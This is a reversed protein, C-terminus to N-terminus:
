FVLRKAYRALRRFGVFLGIASSTAGGISLAIVGIDWLPRQSYWFAFDLSHFGHYLWREVRQRRTFRAVMQSMGPDVYVWTREPDDFKVRLVPLPADRDRDYYYADYDALLQSEVIPM